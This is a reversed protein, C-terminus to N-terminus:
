SLEIALLDIGLFSCMYPPIPTFDHLSCTYHHYRHCMAIFLFLYTSACGAEYLQLHRTVVAQLIQSRTFKRDAIVIRFCGVPNPVNLDDFLDFMLRITEMIDSAFSRITKRITKLRFCQVRGAYRASSCEFMEIGVEKLNPNAKIAEEM